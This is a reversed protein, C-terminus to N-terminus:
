LTEPLLYYASAASSVGPTSIYELRAGAGPSCTILSM